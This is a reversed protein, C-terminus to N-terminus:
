GRHSGEEQRPCSLSGRFVSDWAEDPWKKESEEVQAWNRLISELLLIRSIIPTSLLVMTMKLFMELDEWPSASAKSPQLIPSHFASPRRVCM